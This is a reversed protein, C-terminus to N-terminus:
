FLRKIARDLVARLQEESKPKTMFEIAGSRTARLADKFSKSSSLVISPFRAGARNALDRLLAIGDKRPMQLDVIAMDPSIWQRDILELAEVGDEALLVEGIRPNKALARRILYADAEDDEVLLIQLRTPLRRPLTSAFGRSTRDESLRAPNEVAENPNLNM